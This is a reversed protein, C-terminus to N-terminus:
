LTSIKNGVNSITMFKVNFTKGFSIADSNTQPLGIFMRKLPPFVMSWFDIGFGWIWLPITISYNQPRRIM